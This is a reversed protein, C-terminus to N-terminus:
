FVLVVVLVVVLVIRPVLAFSSRKREDAYRRRSQKRSDFTSYGSRWVQHMSRRPKARNELLLAAKSVCQSPELPDSESRSLRGQIDNEDDNENEDEIESLRRIFGSTRILSIKTVNRPVV